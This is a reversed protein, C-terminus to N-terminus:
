IEFKVNIKFIQRAPLLYMELIGTIEKIEDVVAVVAESDCAIVTFWLNYEFDRGYNHTVESFSSVIEAVEDLRDPPIKAAVLASAHGLKQTNFSPGIKRILNSDMLRQVRKLAEQETIGVQEGLMVYPQSVLPFDHQMLNHLQKDIEDLDIGAAM